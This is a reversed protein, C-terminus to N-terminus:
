WRPASAPQEPLTVGKENPLGFLTHLSPRRLDCDVLLVQNGAQAFTVALNAITTSKGEDAGASTVLLSKVPNDISSLQINTRLTRYAEAVPSRPNALTVLYAHEVPM